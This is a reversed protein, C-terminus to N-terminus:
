LIIILCINYAFITEKFNLFSGLVPLLVFNIIFAGMFYYTIALSISDINFISSIEKGLLYIFIFCLFSLFLSSLNLHKSNNVNFFFNILFPTPIIFYFNRSFKIM